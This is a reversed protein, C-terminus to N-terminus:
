YYNMFPFLISNQNHCVLCLRHGFINHFSVNDFYLKSIFHYGKYIFYYTIIISGETFYVMPDLVVPM